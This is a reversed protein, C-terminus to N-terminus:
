SVVKFEILRFFDGSFDVCCFMSVPRIEAKPLRLNSEKARDNNVFKDNKRLSTVYVLIKLWPKM